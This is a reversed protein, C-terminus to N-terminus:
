RPGSQVMPGSKVDSEPEGLIFTHSSRANGVSKRQLRFGVNHARWAQGNSRRFASGLSQADGKWSGGRIILDGSRTVASTLEWVNGHTDYLHYANESLSGVEHTQAESNLAYWGFHALGNEDNGFHYKFTSGARHAFEWQLDSPLGYLEGTLASVRRAHGGVETPYVNEVPHNPQFRYVNDGIRLEVSYKGEKFFSPTANVRAEGLAALFYLFQTVPVQGMAFDEGVGFSANRTKGEKEGMLGENGVLFTHGGRFRFEVEGTVVPNILGRLIVQEEIIKRHEVRLRALYPELDACLHRQEDDQQARREEARRMRESPFYLMLEIEYRVEAVSRAERVALETMLSLASEMPAGGNIASIYLEALQGLVVERDAERSSESDSGLALVSTHCQAGQVSAVRLFVLGWLVGRFIV